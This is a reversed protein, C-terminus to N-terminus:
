RDILMDYTAKHPDREAHAWLYYEAEDNKLEITNRPPRQPILIGPTRAM